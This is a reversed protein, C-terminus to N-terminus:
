RQPESPTVSPDAAHKHATTEAPRMWSATWTSWARKATAWGAMSSLDLKAPCHKGKDGTAVVISATDWGAAKLQQKIREKAFEHQVNVFNAATYETFGGTWMAMM